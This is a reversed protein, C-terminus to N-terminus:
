RPPGFLRKIKPLQAPVALRMTTTVVASPAFYTCLALSSAAAIPPRPPVPLRAPNLIRNQHCLTPEIGVARVMEKGVTQMAGLLKFPSSIKATRYGEGRVYALRDAFVLKLVARRDEIRESVWLKYPNALFSFATRYTEGFSKLPKGCSALRERMVAKQMELEKIRREYAAVVSDSTADVIRDLLQEVKREVGRLEQELAKTQSRAGSLKQQWLDKFMQFAVNFLGESPRLEQLLHEFEGEIM